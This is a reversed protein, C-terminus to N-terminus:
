ERIVAAKTAAAPPTQSQMSLVAVNQSDLYEYRLGTHALLEELARAPTYMGALRPSTIDKAYDSYLMVHLGTQRSFEILASEIPQAPINLAVKDAVAVGPRRSELEQATLTTVAALM